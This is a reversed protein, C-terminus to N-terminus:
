RRDEELIKGSDLAKPMKAILAGRDPMRRTPPLEVLPRLDAVAVGQKEIVYSKGEAVERIIASTKLHLDRVSAREM